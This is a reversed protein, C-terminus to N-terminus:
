LGECRRQRPVIGAPLGRRREGRARAESTGVRADNRTDAVQDRALAVVQRQLRHRLDLARMEHEDAPAAFARPQLAQRAFQLDRRADAKEVFHRLFAQSEHVRRGIHQYQSGLAFAPGVYQQLRRCAARRHHREVDAAHGLDEGIARDPRDNASRVRWARQGARNARHQGARGRALRHTRGRDAERPIRHEIGLKGQVATDRLCAACVIAM